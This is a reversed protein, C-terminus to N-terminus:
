FQHNSINQRIREAILYGQEMNTQTLIICFEEGGYRCVYDCERSSENLIQAIEKLVIDGNQHGYLDNLKKFDDIDIMILGISTQTKLANEIEETLKDQFFGHNWLHTIADTHSKHKVLEYLRSNEIALWGKNSLM